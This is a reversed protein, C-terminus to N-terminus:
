NKKESKKTKKEDKKKSNEKKLEKVKEEQQKKQEKNIDEITKPHDVMDAFEEGGIYEKDMLITVLQDMITKNKEITAKAIKYAEELYEKIKQDIKQATTESYPKFLTYDTNEEYVVM